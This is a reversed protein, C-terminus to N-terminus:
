WWWRPAFPFGLAIYPRPYWPRYWPRWYAHRRWYPYPRWPYYGAYRPRWFPGGWYFPRPGWYGYRPGWLRRGVFVRGGYYRRGYYHRIASVDTMAKHTTRLGDPGRDAASAPAPLALMVAVALAAVTALIKSM